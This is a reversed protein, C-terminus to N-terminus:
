RKLETTWNVVVTTATPQNGLQLENLLIRNGDASVAYNIRSASLGESRIPAHFLLRPPNVKLDAGQAELGVVMLNHDASLYFLERGNHSWLAQDGGATSIQIKKTRAFDQVYVEPRGTEDSSYAVWRGDPSFSAHSVNFSSSLFPQLKGDGHVPLLWLSGHDRTGVDVKEVLLLRGDPSWSDPYLTEGGQDQPLRILTVANGAGTSPRVVISFERLDTTPTRYAIQAGDPSWIPCVARDEFSLRSLAGRAVDLVWVSNRQGIIDLAIRRGDPSLAPEDYAGPHAIDELKRGNRDHWALQLRLGGSKTYALVGANASFPAYYTPGAEGEPEIGDVLAVPEGIPRLKRSSFAQSFLTRGRVFVLYGPTAFQVGSSATFLEQRERSDLAGIFVVDTEKAIGVRALFTFHRGDPLFHPWRHSTEGKSADLLTVSTPNGGNASVRYLASTPSPVFIIDGNANWDGGRGEGSPAIGEATDAVSQVAESRLDIKKLKGGAFFGVQSSDPSWFPFHAGETGPLLKSDSSNLKRLVLTSEGLSASVVFAVQQGNPSVALGYDFAWKEPPFISFEIKGPSLSPQWPRWLGLLIGVAVVAAFLFGKLIQNGGKAAPVQTPVHAIWVLERAIDAASQWREDPSKALCTAILHDLALPSAKQLSSVPEPEKELIATIISLQSKGEFARRGTTMEYLVAGFAFIDSRADAERGQLQEPSIYHFTGLVHGKQTLPSAPSTLSPLSLTPTTPSLQGGASAARGLAPAVPKALGFDMLKAGSKTLMINGPKLDRHVIGVYHAKSLADAIEQGIKLIEKIPLAGGLLRDALTVGELFEMVLFTTSSQSGVDYLTCIHPHNLSSITRAEREFRQIRDPDSSLHSPLVKIAVTRDLRTDNARYVEGMGGAGLLSQIEYPGLKTGASLSM